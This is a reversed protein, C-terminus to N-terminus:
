MLLAGHYKRTSRARGSPIVENFSESIENDFDCDKQNTDVTHYVHKIQAIDSTM